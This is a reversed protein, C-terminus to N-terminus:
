YSFCKINHTFPLSMLNNQIIDYLTSFYKVKCRWTTKFQWTSPQIRVLVVWFADQEFEQQNWIPFLQNNFSKVSKCFRKFYFHFTRLKATAFLQVLSFPLKPCFPTEFCFNSKPSPWPLNKSSISLCLCVYLSLSWSCKLYTLSNDTIAIFGPMDPDWQSYRKLHKIHYCTFCKRWDM